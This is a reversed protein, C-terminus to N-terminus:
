WVPWSRRRRRRGFFGAFVELEASRNGLRGLADRALRSGRHGLLAACSLELTDRLFKKTLKVTVTTHTPDTFAETDGLSDEVGDNM